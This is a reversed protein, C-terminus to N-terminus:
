MLACECGGGKDRHAVKGEVFGGSGGYSGGGSGDDDDFVEEIGDVQKEHGNFRWLKRPQSDESSFQICEMSGDAARIFCRSAEGSIQKAPDRMPMSWKTAGTKVALAAVKGDSWTSLLITNDLSPMHISLAKGMSLGTSQGVYLNASGSSGGVRWVEQGGNWHLASVSGDRWCAYYHEGGGTIAVATGRGGQHSWEEMGDESRLARVTGDDCAICVLRQAKVVVQHAHVLVASTGDVAGGDSSKLHSATSRQADEYRVLQAAKEQDGAIKEMREAWRILRLPRFEEALKRADHAIKEMHTPNTPQKANSELLRDIRAQLEPRIGEIVECNACKM